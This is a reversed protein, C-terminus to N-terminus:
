RPVWLRVRTGRGTASDVTACGGVEAVRDGISGRQGAGSPIRGPDYGGGADAVVVEVGGDVARVRVEASDTGAHKAVNTLAERVAGLLARTGTADPAPLDAPIALDVLLGGVAKEAVLERLGAGLGGDSVGDGDVVGTEIVARLWRVERRVQAAVVPDLVEGTVGELTSLLRARLVAAQRSRERESALAEARGVAARRHADLTRASGRLLWAIVWIMTATDLLALSDLWGNWLPYNTPHHLAPDLNAAGLLAAGALAAGLSWAPLAYGAVAITAFGYLGRWPVHTGTVDPQAGLWMLGALFAADALAWSAPVRGVVLYGGAIVFSEVAVLGLLLALVPRRVDIVGSALASAPLLLAGIRSAAGVLALVREAHTAASPEVSAQSM